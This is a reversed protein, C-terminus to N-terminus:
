DNEEEEEGRDVTPNDSLKRHKAENHEKVSMKREGKRSQLQLNCKSYVSGLFKGTTHCHRKVKKELEPRIPESLQSM